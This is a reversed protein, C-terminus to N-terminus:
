PSDWTPLGTPVVVTGNFPDSAGLRTSSLLGRQNRPHFREISFYVRIDDGEAPSSVDGAWM